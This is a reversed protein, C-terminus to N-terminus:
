ATIEQGNKMTFRLDDKGIVTAYDVLSCWLEKSFDELPEDTVKLVEVFELMKEGRQQRDQIEGQIEDYHRTAAQYREMHANYRREYEDEDMKEHANQAILNRIIGETVEIERQLEVAEAQLEECDLMMEVMMMTDEILFEQRAITKNLARMFANQIEEETLHPTTCKEANKFKANCQWIVKRYKDNSHWVKSGYANGCCGCLVKGSFIYTGSHMKGKRAELERQVTDFAESSIIAPHSDEVYYQPVEGENVKM